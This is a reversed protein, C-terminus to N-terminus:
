GLNPNKRYRLVVATSLVSLLLPVILLWSLEPVSPSPTNPPMTFTQTPSWDSVSVAYYDYSQVPTNGLYHLYGYALTAQVQFDIEDGSSYTGTPFSIVTYTSNSQHPSQDNAFMGYPYKWNEAFHGKMRVNYLIYSKNGDITSPFAQNVITLDITINQVYYSPATITTTKNNYPNTTSTTTSPVTYSHNALTLSFTPVSITHTSQADAPTVMLLSAVPVALMIVLVLALNQHFNIM